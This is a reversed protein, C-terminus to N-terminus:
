VAAPEKDMDPTSMLRLNERLRTDSPDLRVAQACWARAEKLAGVRYACISGIDYPLSGWAEGRCIYSAPRETIKLCETAAYFGLPFNGSRYAANLLHFWPEREGPAETVARMRYAFATHSRLTAEYAQALYEMSAAREPAWTARPCALHKELTLIAGDWQQTFVYERGLYHLNRDDGPDELVALELLPLYQARSKTPDPHHHIELGPVFTSTEPFACPVLTEHVPHKWRHTFRSHMKDGSYSVDPEGNPKWSWIYKYRPRSVPNDRLAKLLAERWGPMLVEDMDLAICIDADPPVLALCTNRAVDFRWPTIYGVHVTVGATQLIPVTLDASGTDLVVRYDAEACSRAWRDAFLAENKAITYVAIKM